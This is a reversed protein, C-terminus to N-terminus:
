YKGGIRKGNMEGQKTVFKMRVGYERLTFRADLRGVRYPLWFASQFWKVFDGRNPFWYEGFNPDFLCVDQGIFAAMCHGGGPGYVGIMVYFGATIKSSVLGNSLQVGVNGSSKNGEMITREQRLGGVGQVTKTRRMLGQSFLYIESARDQDTKGSPDRLTEGHIQNFALNVVAAKNIKGNDDYIWNFLSSDNAHMAIWKASTAECIGERTTEHKSIISNVPELCQSYASTQFGNHKKASSALVKIYQKVVFQALGVAIRRKQFRAYGQLAEEPCSKSVDHELPEFAQRAIPGADVNSM